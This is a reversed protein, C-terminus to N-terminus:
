TVTVDPDGAVLDRAQSADARERLFSLITGSVAVIPTAVLAGLIGGLTLGVSVALLIALPHIRVSRGVVVPSFVNSEVQQVVVIAGLIILASWFGEFVLAVLVAAAGAVFAGIIPIFAGFFTIVILPLALPVGVVVLAIGIFLADFAAVLSQGRLFGALTAWSREGLEAVDGRRHPPALSCVWAWIRDGDKLLFFLVVVTLVLTAVVELLMMAGTLAGRWVDGARQQAQAVAEDILEDFQRDSLGLPGEVLWRQITEIGGIIGVDLDDFEEIAQPALVAVLLGLALLFAALVTTAALAPPAGLGRLYATPPQLFTALVLGLFVPLVAVRLKAALWVLGVIGLGIVLLWLIVEGTRRLRRFARSEAPPPPPAAAGDAPGPAASTASLPEITTM